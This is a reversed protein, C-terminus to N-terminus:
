ERLQTTLKTVVPGREERVKRECPPLSQQQQQQQQQQQKGLVSSAIRLDVTKRKEQTICIAVGAKDSIRHHDNASLHHHIGSPNHIIIINHKQIINCDKKSPRRYTRQVWNSTRHRAAGHDRLDNGNVQEDDIADDVVSMPMEDDVVPASEEQPGVLLCQEASSQITGAHFLRTISCGAPLLPTTAAHRRACLLSLDCQIISEGHAQRLSL